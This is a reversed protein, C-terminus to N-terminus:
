HKTAYDFAVYADPYILILGRLATNNRSHCSHEDWCHFPIELNITASVHLGCASFTADHNVSCNCNFSIFPHILKKLFLLLLIPCLVSFLSVHVFKTYLMFLMLIRVSTWYSKIDEIKTRLGKGGHHSQICSSAGGRQGRWLLQSNCLLANRVQCLRNQWGWVWWKSYHVSKKWGQIFTDYLSFMLLLFYM